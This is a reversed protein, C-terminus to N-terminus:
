TKLIEVWVALHTNYFRGDPFVNSEPRWKIKVQQNEKLSQIIEGTHKYSTFVIFKAGKTNEVELVFSSAQYSGQPGKLDKPPLVRKVIGSMEFKEDM